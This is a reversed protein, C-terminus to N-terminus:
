AVKDVLSLIDYLERIGIPKTVHRSFGASLAKERDHSFGYGTLAIIPIDSANTAQLTQVLEYGDMEPMGIDVIMLDPWENEIHALTAKGSYYAFAEHGMAELLRALSDAAQVNDDVVIVKKRPLTNSGHM